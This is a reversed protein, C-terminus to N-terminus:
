QPELFSLLLLIFILIQKDSISVWKDKGSLTKSIISLLYYANNKTAYIKTFALLQPTIDNKFIHTPFLDHSSSRGPFVIVPPSTLLTTM